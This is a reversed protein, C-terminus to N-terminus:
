WSWHSGLTQLRTKFSCLILGKGVLLSVLAVNIPVILKGNVRPQNNMMINLILGSVRKQRKMKAQNKINNRKNKTLM